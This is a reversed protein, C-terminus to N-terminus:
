RGITRIDESEVYPEDGPGVNPEDDNPGPPPEDDPQEESTQQEGTHQVYSQSETQQETDLQAMQELAIGNLLRQTLLVIIPIFVIFLGGAFLIFRNYRGKSALDVQQAFKWVPIAYIFPVTWSLGLALVWLGPNGTRGNYALMERSVWFFWFIGYIGLTMVMLFAVSWLSRYKIM